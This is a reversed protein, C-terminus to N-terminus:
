KYLRLDIFVQPFFTSFTLLTFNFFLSRLFVTIEFDNRNNPTASGRLMLLNRQFKSYVDTM